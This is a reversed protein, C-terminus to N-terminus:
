DRPWKEFAENATHFLLSINKWMMDLLETSVYSIGHVGNIKYDCLKCHPSCNEMYLSGSRAIASCLLMLGECTGSM